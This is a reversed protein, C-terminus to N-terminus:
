HYYIMADFDSCMKTIESLELGLREALQPLTISNDEQLLYIGMDPNLDGAKTLRAALVQQLKDVLTKKVYFKWSLIPVDQRFHHAPVLILDYHGSTAVEIAKAEFLAFAAAYDGLKTSSM